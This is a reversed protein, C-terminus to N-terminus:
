KKTENPLRERERVVEVNELKRVKKIIINSKM